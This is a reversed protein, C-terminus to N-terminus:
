AKLSAVGRRLLDKIVISVEQPSVHLQAAVEAPTAKSECLLRAIPLWAKPSVTVYLAFADPNVELARAKLVQDERSRRREENLRSVVRDLLADTAEGPFDEEGPEASRSLTGQSENSALFTGLANDGRTRVSGAASGFRVLRGDQFRARWTAWRDKADLQGSFRMRTLARLVWQPGLSGFDLLMGGEAEVLRFFRRRPELLERVQAELAALRLTKSFYAQAGTNLVRLAERYDDHASYLAVPVERTRFDERVVRLFGWGDLRPMALDAVVAEVPSAAMVQLADAGNAATRVPYGRKSFYGGLMSLVSAEDDVFLLPWNAADPDAPPPDPAPAAAVIPEDPGAGEEVLEGTIVPEDGEGLDIGGMLADPTDEEEVFIWPAGSRAMAMFAGGGSEGGFSAGRPSGRVFRAHGERPTGEAVVLKGSRQVSLLHRALAFLEGKAGQGRLRGPREPLEVALLRLRTIHLAKFPAQLLEVVGTRMPRVFVDDRADDCLLAIPVRGLGEVRLHRVLRALPTRGLESRVLLATPEIRRCAETVGVPDFACAEVNLGAADLAVAVLQAANADADVVVVGPVTKEQVVM